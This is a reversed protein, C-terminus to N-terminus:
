PLTLRATDNSRTHPTLNMVEGDLSLEVGPAYGLFVSYPAVGQIERVAGASVLGSALQEGRADEVRVWSNEKFRILLVPAGSPPETSRVEEPEAEAVVASDPAPPRVNAPQPDVSPSDDSASNTRLRTEARLSTPAVPAEDAAESESEEGNGLQSELVLAPRREAPREVPGAQGSVPPTVLVPPTDADPRDQQIWWLVAVLVAVVVLIALLTKGLAKPESPNSGALLVKAPPLNTETRARAEYGAILADEDLNLVKACKRYYGRVYVSESLDEFRDSELADLTTRALKTHAALEEISMGAGDRAARIAKGPSPPLGAGDDDPLESYQEAPQELPAAITQEEDASPPPGQETKSM